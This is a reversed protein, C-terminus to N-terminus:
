DDLEQWGGIANAIAIAVDGRTVGVDESVHLMFDIWSENLPLLISNLALFVSAATLATRKNGDVFPHSKVLYFLYGSAIDALSNLLPQGDWTAQVGLVAAELAEFRFVEATGGFAGIADEHLEFVEQVTLYRVDRWNMTQDGARFGRGEPPPSSASGQLAGDFCSLSHQEAHGVDIKKM